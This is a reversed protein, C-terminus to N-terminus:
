KTEKTQRAIRTLSLHGALLLATGLLVEVFFALAHWV